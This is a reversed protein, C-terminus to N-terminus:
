NQKVNKEDKMYTLAVIFLNLIFIFSLVIGFVNFFTFPWVFTSFITKLIEGILLFAALFFTIVFCPLLMNTKLEKFSSILFLDLLILIGFCIYLIISTKDTLDTVLDTKKREFEKVLQKENTVSYKLKGSSTNVCRNVITKINDYNVLTDFCIKTKQSDNFIPNSYAFIGFENLNSFTEYYNTTPEISNWHKSTGSLYINNISLLYEYKGRKFLFPEQIDFIEDYSNLNLEDLIVDAISSPIYSAFDAGYQPGKKIAFNDRYLPLGLYETEAFDNYVPSSYLFAKHSVGHFSLSFEEDVMCYPHLKERRVYLDRCLTDALSYDIAEESAQEVEIHVSESSKSFNYAAMITAENNVMNKNTGYMFFMGIVFSNILVFLISSLIRNERHEKKTDVSYHKHYRIRKIINFAVNRLACLTAKFDSYGYLQSFVKAHYKILKTKKGSSLSRSSERYYSLTEHLAHCDVKESLKLWLAYDNRKELTNPISLDPYASKKYMVTLCGVYNVRKFKKHTINNPSTVKTGTKNGERDILEYDTCSFSCKNTRMFKLQKELKNPVWLDDGDLFAIYDGTAKSIALNRCYAAGRNKKNQIFIIRKDNFSSVIKKTNDTSGDDVIILEFNKHTQALVSRITEAIFQEINYSPTVISVKIDKHHM